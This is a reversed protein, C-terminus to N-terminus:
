SCYCLSFFSSIHKSYRTSPKLSLMHARQIYRKTHESGGDVFLTTEATSNLWISSGEASFQVLGGTREFTTWTVVMENHSAKFM